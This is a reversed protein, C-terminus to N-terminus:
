GWGGEAVCSVVSVSHVKSFGVTAGFLSVQEGGRTSGRSSTCWERSSPRDDDWWNIWLTRRTLVIDRCVMDRDGHTCTMGHLFRSHSGGLGEDQESSSVAGCSVMSSIGFSRCKLGSGLDGVDTSLCKLSKLMSRISLSIGTERLADSSAVKGVNIWSLVKSQSWQVRYLGGFSGRLYEKKWKFFIFLLM